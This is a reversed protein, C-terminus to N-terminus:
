SKVRGRSIRMAAAIEAESLDAYYRLVLAERQRGPLDHLAAIVASRRLLALARYEASPMDPTPKPASKQIVTRHRLVARSRNVVVKRLYAMSHETDRLRVRGGDYVM